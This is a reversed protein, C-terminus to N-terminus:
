EETPTTSEEESTLENQITYLVGFLRNINEYGKVEIQNLSNYIQVLTQKNM